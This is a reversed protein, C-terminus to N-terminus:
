SAAVATQTPLVRDPQVSQEPASLPTEPAGFHAGLPTDFCFYHYVTGGLNRILRLLYAM